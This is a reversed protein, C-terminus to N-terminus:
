LFPACIRKCNLNGSLNGPWKRCHPSLVMRKIRLAGRLQEAAVLRGLLRDGVLVGLDGLLAALRGDLDAAHLADPRLLLLESQVLLM